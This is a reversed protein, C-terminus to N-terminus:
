EAPPASTLRTTPEYSVGNYVGKQLKFLCHYGASLDKKGANIKDEAKKGYIVLNGKLYPHEYYVDEGVVGQIGKSDAPMNGKKHGLMAHDDIFPILKFSEICEADQLEEAPRLVNYLKDPELSSHIQRGSYQFVGAKTLPNGQIEPWLNIDYTRASAGRAMLTNSHM